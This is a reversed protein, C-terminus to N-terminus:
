ADQRSRKKSRSGHHARVLEIDAPVVKTEVALETIQNAVREALRRSNVFVITTTHQQILELLKPYILPWMGGGDPKAGETTMRASPPPAEMDQAPVTIQLDLLPKASADVIEVPRDGGLYRAVETLPRQTASLGIRQPEPNGASTVLHALRELTLALHIGRKTPALAHIEDVIITDVNLLRERSQGALVLYLSEPTTILIQGPQKRQREREKTPTDGTRVDAVIQQAAGLAQLGALPARLNREIDYALAKIPSVYVVSTGERPARSLRDLCWLFAALTKGSGTPALMLTHNGQAISAWGRAQVPTPASFSQSFWTRSTASFPSLPDAPV